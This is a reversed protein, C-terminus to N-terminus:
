SLAREEYLGSGIINATYTFFGVNSSKNLQDLFGSFLIEFNESQENIATVRISKTTRQRKWDYFFLADIGGDFTVLGQLTAVVEVPKLIDSESYDSTRLGKHVIRNTASSQNIEFSEAYGVLQSDVEIKVNYALFYSM